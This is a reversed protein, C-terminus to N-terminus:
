MIPMYTFNDWFAFLWYQSYRSHQLLRHCRWSNSTKSPRHPLRLCRLGPVLVGGLPSQDSPPWPSLLPSLASSLVLGFGMTILLLDSRSKDATCFLRIKILWAFIPLLNFTFLKHIYQNITPNLSTFMHEDLRHFNCLIILYTLINYSFM